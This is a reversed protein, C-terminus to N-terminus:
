HQRDDTTTLDVVPSAGSVTVTEELAGINLSVNVRAAFGASLELGQRVLLQFGSLDFRIQYTGRPLDIFRYHGGADTTETKQPVQLAPSTVTM